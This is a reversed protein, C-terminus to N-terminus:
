SEIVVCGLLRGGCRQLVEVSERLARRSTHGLRVVLYTGTGHRALQVAEEHALSATDVLVLRYCNGLAQWLADVLNWRGPLRNEAAPRKVGPLISLRPVATPRVVHRWRATGLLVDGLGEDAAVGWRSSLEPRQLDGDVLLLEGELREVLAEALVSLVDTTGMGDEPSTLMLVAPGGRSVQWLVHEILRADVGARAETPRFLLPTDNETAPQGAPAVAAAVAASAIEVQALAAEVVADGYIAEVPESVAVVQPAVEPLLPLCVAPQEAPVEPREEAPAAVPQEAPVAIPYDTFVPAPQEASAVAPQPPPRPPRTPGAEIRKLAELMRGM